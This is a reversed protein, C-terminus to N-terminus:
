FEQRAPDQVLLSKCHFTELSHSPQPCSQAHIVILIAKTDCRPTRDIWMGTRQEENLLELYSLPAPANLLVNSPGAEPQEDM